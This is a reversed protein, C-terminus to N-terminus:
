RNGSIVQELEQMSKAPNTHFIAIGGRQEFPVTYKTRDDILIHTPAAFNAKEQTCHFESYLGSFHKQMWAQKEQACREGASEMPATLINPMKGTLEAAKRLMQEAGPLPPLNLFFGPKGAVMFKLQRYDQWAKKLAKMGADQQPGALRKRLDDDPLTKFEPFQDLIKRFVARAQVAKQDVEIGGDFNALVGDMDFYVTFSQPPPPPAAAGGDLEYEVLTEILKVIKENSM